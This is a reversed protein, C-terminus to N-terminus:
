SYFMEEGRREIEPILKGNTSFNRELFGERSLGTRQLEEKRM